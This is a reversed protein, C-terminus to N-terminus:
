FPVPVVAQSAHVCADLARGCSVKSTADMLGLSGDAGGGCPVRPPPPPGHVSTVCNLGPRIVIEFAVNNLRILIAYPCFSQMRDDFYPIIEPPGSQIRVCFNVIRAVM